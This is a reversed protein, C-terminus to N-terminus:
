ADAGQRQKVKRAVSQLEPSHLWDRTTDGDLQQQM